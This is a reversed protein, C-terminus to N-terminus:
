KEPQMFFIVVEAIQVTRQLHIIYEFPFTLSIYMYKKVFTLLCVTKCLLNCWSNQSLPGNM